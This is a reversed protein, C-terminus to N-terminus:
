NKANHFAAMLEKSGADIFDVESSTEFFRVGREIWPRAGEYDAVWAGAVVGQRQAAALVKEVNEVVEPHTYECPHGFSVSFDMMGLLVLEIGEVSLIDDINTVGERTEIHAIAVTERNAIQMFENADQHLDYDNNGTGYSVARIGQPPFKILSVLRRAEEGTSIPPYQIGTVGAELLKAVYTRSLEPIKAVVPMGKMRCVLVFDALDAENFFCHEYEIYVFDSGAQAYLEVLWPRTIHQMTFGVVLRDEKLLSRLSKM